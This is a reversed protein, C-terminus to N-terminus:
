YHLKFQYDSEFLFAGCTIEGAFGHENGNPSYDGAKVSLFPAKQQLSIWLLSVMFITLTALTLILQM